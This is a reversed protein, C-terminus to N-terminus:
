DQYIKIVGEIISDILEDIDIPDKFGLMSRNIYSLAGSVLSETLTFKIGTPDSNLIGEKTGIAILKKFQEEYIKFTKRTKLIFEERWEKPLADKFDSTMFKIVTSGNISLQFLFQLEQKFNQKFTLNNDIKREHLNDMAKRFLRMLAERLLEDKTTFYEYITSKGINVEKALKSITFNTQFGNSTIIDSLADLIEDKRSM